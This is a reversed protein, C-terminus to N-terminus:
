KQHKLMINESLYRIESTKAVFRINVQITKKANGRIKPRFYTLNMIKLNREDIERGLIHKTITEFQLLQRRQTPVLMKRLDYVVEGNIAINRETESEVLTIASTLNTFLLM